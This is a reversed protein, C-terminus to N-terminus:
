QPTWTLVVLCFNQRAIFRFILQIRRFRDIFCWFSESIFQFIERSAMLFLRLKVSGVSYFNYCFILRKAALEIMFWLFRVISLSQSIWNSFFRKSFFDWWILKQEIKVRDARLLHFLLTLSNSFSKLSGCIVKKENGSDKQKNSKHYDFFFTKWPFDHPFNM